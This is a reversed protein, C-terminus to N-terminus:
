KLFVKPQHPNCFIQCKPCGLTNVNFELHSQHRQALVCYHKMVVVFFFFITCNSRWSTWPQGLWGALKGLSHFLICFSCAKWFSTTSDKELSLYSLIQSRTITHAQIPYHLFSFLVTTINYCFIHTFFLRFAAELLYTETFKIIKQSFDIKKYDKGM